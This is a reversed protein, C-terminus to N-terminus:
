VRLLGNKKPAECSCARGRIDARALRRPQDDQIRKRALRDSFNRYVTKRVIKEIIRDALSDVDGAAFAKNVDDLLKIGAM